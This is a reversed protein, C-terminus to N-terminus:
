QLRGVKQRDGCCRRRQASTIISVICYLRHEYAVCKIATDQNDNQYEQLAAFASIGPAANPAPADPVTNPARPEDFKKELAM